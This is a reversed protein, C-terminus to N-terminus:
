PAPAEMDPIPTVPKTARAVEGSVPPVTARAKELREDNLLDLKYALAAAARARKGVGRVFAKVIDQSLDSQHELWDELLAM